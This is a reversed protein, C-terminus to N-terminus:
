HRFVRTVENTQQDAYEMWSKLVFGNTVTYTVSADEQVPNCLVTFTINSGSANTITLMSPNALGVTYVFGTVACPTYAVYYYHNTAGLTIINTPGGWANTTLFMGTTTFNNFNSALAVSQQMQLWTVNVNTRNLPDALLLLDTPLPVPRNTYSSIKHPTGITVISSQNSLGLAPISILASFNTVQARITACSFLLLLILLKRM